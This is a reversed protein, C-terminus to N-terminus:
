IFIQVLSKIALGLLIFAGVFDAYKGFVHGLKKGFIVCLGVIIFTIVAIVLVALYVPFTLNVFPIGAFLADISTAIGQLFLVLFTLNQTKPQNDTELTGNKKEIADKIIDIFIKGSLIFFIASSLYGSISNILEPSVLALLSGLFFGILPMIGQFIAFFIPMAWQKKANLSNKYVSCNSITIAGADMSLAVAILVVDYLYLNM